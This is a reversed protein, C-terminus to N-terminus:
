QFRYTGKTDVTVKPLTKKTEFWEYGPQLNKWFSVLAKDGDYAAQLQNWTAAGILRSPFIHVPIQAQGANKAEVFAVYMEKIMSDTMAMCGISVCNGHIFIDGGPNKKDSLILDSANPYNIGLSLYFNSQPNWRNIVYFGEPVQYDGMRRKPGVEGSASCVTYTKLLQFVTNQGKARAWLELQKERKFVRLFIESQNIKLGKDSFLKQAATEKEDYATKVREFALQSSKFDKPPVFSGTVLGILLLVFVLTKGKM